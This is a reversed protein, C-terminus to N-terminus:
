LLPYLYVTIDDGSYEEIYLLQKEDFVYVQLNYGAEATAKFKAINKDFEMNLTYDSKVEIIINKSPIYIDPYYKAERNKEPHIYTIVHIQHSDVVIDEERYTELLLDLWRNEYGQVEVIRGNPFEYDFSNFANALKNAVTEKHSM